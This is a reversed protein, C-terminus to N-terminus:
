LLAFLEDLLAIPLAVLDSWSSAGADDGVPVTAPMWEAADAEDRADALAIFLADSAVPRVLPATGEDGALRDDEEVGRVPVTAAPGEPGELAQQAEPDASHADAVLLTTTVTTSGGGSDSITITVTYKGPNLYTVGSSVGFTNDGTRAITGTTTTGNGWDIRATYDAATAGASDGVFSAVNGAFAVNHTATATTGTAQPANSSTTAPIL